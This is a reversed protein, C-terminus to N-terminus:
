STGVKKRVTLVPCHATRVVIEALSGLLLHSIGRRGHTGMVILDAEVLQAMTLIVSHADGTRLMVEGFPVDGRYRDILRDLALQHEQVIPAFTVSAVAVGLEPVGLEPIGIVNLVHIRSKLPRALAIAYDLAYEATESFDIPVLINVPLMM